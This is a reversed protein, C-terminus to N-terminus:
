AVLEYVVRDKGDAKARYMLADCTSVIQEPGLEPRRFTAAGISLSSSWRQTEFARRLDARIRELAQMAKSGETQPFLIAFEDGGLRAVSDTIRLARRVCEVLSQLLADGEQHGLRDNIAKLGDCDMYAVSFPEGSRRSRAIELTLLELFHQRNVAGTLADVRAQRHERDYLRRLPATLGVVVFFTFVRNAFIVNWYFSFPPLGTVRASLELMVYTQIASAAFAFGTGAAAGVNWTALLIVLVYAFTLNLQPPTVYDLTVIAFFLIACVILSTRRDMTFLAQVLRRWSNRASAFLVLLFRPM